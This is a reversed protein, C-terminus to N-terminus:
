LVTGPYCFLNYFVLSPHATLRCHFGQPEVAVKHPFATGKRIQMQM